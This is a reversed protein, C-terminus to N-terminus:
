YCLMEKGGYVWELVWLKGSLWMRWYMEEKSDKDKLNRDCHIGDCTFGIWLQTTLKLDIGTFDGVSCVCESNVLGIRTWRGTLTTVVEGRSSTRLHLDAVLAIDIRLTTIVAQGMGTITTTATTSTLSTRTTAMSTRMRTSITSTTMDRSMPSTTDVVDEAMNAEQNSTKTTTTRRTINKTTSTKVIAMIRIILVRSTTIVSSIIAQSTTIGIDAITTPTPAIWIKIGRATDMIIIDVLTTLVRDEKQTSATRIIVVTMDMAISSKSTEVKSTSRLRIKISLVLCRTPLQASPMSLRSRGTMLLLQRIWRLLPLTLRRQRHIYSIHSVEHFRLRITRLSISRNFLDSSPSSKGWPIKLLASLYELLTCTAIILLTLKKVSRIKSRKRNVMGRQNSRCITLRKGMKEKLMLIRKAMKRKLMMKLNTKLIIKHSNQRKMWKRNIWSLKMKALWHIKNRKKMTLCTM